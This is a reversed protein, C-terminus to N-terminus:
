QNSSVCLKFFFFQLLGVNSRYSTPGLNLVFFEFLSDQVASYIRNHIQRFRNRFRCKIDFYIFHSQKNIVMERYRREQYLLMKCLNNQVSENKQNRNAHYDLKNTKPCSKTKSAAIVDKNTTM